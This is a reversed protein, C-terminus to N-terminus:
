NSLIQFSDIIKGNENSRFVAELKDQKVTISIPGHAPNINAGSWAAFYPKAPRSTRIDRLIKGGTGVISFITGTEAVYTKRSGDVVCNKNYKNPDISSCNRNLGLQKTRMYGHEHGQLVLDVKHTLLLDNIDTGIECSKEGITICNMHMAVIIWKINKQKADILQQEVWKYESTGKKYTYSKGKMKIGPSIFIFRSNGNYDFYYRLGYQGQQDPIKNPLCDAYNEIFGQGKESYTNTDHNGVLLEFPFDKGLHKKVTNCWKEESTEGYSFDGLAMMFDSDSKKVSKLTKVFQEGATFDGAASFTFDQKNLEEKIVIPSNTKETVDNQSLGFIIGSIILLIGLLLAIVFLKHREAWSFYRLLFQKM